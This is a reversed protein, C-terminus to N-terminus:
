GQGQRRHHLVVQEAAEPKTATGSGLKKFIANDLYLSDDKVSFDKITDFNVKRDTSSTGLKTDFVFVDKGKGGTLMDNGLGGSLKDNGLGGNFVDKGVGGVLVDTGPLAPSTRAQSM